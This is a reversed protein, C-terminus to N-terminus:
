AVVQGQLRPDPVYFGGTVFWESTSLKSNVLFLLVASSRTCRSRAGSRQAVARVPQVPAGAPWRRSSWRRATFPWAEYRTLCAAALSWGAARRWGAGGVSAWRTSRWRSRAHAARDAAARDDADVAPVPHEPQARAAGRCLLAGATSGTARLVMRQAPTRRRRGHEAISIAVGSAGTRYFADVQVPLLNLLHPLPLWVAGIQQWGPTISDIVRRAVVLHAKADYHSLTLGQM